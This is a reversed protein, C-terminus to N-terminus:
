NFLTMNPINGSLNWTLTWKRARTRSCNFLFVISEEPSQSISWQYVNVVPIRSTHVSLAPWRSSLVLPLLPMCPRQSDAIVCLSRKRADSKALLSWATDSKKDQVLSSLDVWKHSIMSANKLCFDAIRWCLGVRKPHPICYYNGALSVKFRHSCTCDLKAARDM